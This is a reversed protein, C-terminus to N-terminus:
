NTRIIELPGRLEGTQEGGCTALYRVQVIYTGSNLIEGGSRGDWQIPMGDNRFM